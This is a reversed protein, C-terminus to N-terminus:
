QQYQKTCNINNFNRRLEYFRSKKTCKFYGLKFAPYKFHVAVWDSLVNLKRSWQLRDIHQKKNSRCLTLSMEDLVDSTMYKHAQPNKEWETWMWRGAIIEYRFISFTHKWMTAAAMQIKARLWNNRMWNLESLKWWIFLIVCQLVGNSALTYCESTM